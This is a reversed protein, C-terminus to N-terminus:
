MKQRLWRNQFDKKTTTTTKDCSVDLNRERAEQLCDLQKQLGSYCILIIDAVFPLMLLEVPGLLLHM